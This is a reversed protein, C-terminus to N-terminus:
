IGDACVFLAHEDLGARSPRLKGDCPVINGQQVEDFQHLKSDFPLGSIGFTSLKKPPSSM